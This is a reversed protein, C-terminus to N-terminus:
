DGSSEDHEEEKVSNAQRIPVRLRAAQERLHQVVIRCPCASRWATPNVGVPTKECLKCCDTRNTGAASRIAVRRAFAVLYKLSLHHRQRELNIEKWPDTSLIAQPAKPM